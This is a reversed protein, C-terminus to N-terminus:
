TVEQRGPAPAALPLPNELIGAITGLFRLAAAGDFVRHDCALVLSMEHRLQPQGAADPRFVGRVGGVGLIASQSPHVIPALWTAGLMGVNSVSVAGGEADAADLRGRRARDVLADARAALDALTLRGAERLVPMAVGRDTNVAFGVDSAGLRLLRGERWVANAEPLEVLARGVAQLILHHITVRATGLGSLKRRYDRLFGVDAERATYFHPIERASRSVLAAMALHFPSPEHFTGEAGPAPSSAAGGSVDAAVIRGGAGRGRVAGLDVGMERAMRRALPTAVVRGPASRTERAVVTGPAPRWRALPTGVAAREGEPVLIEALEGASPAEVDATSKETEVVAVVEGAALRQGPRAVWRAVVGETMTLGLKPM